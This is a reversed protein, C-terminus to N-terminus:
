AHPNPVATKTGRCVLRALAINFGPTNGGPGSFKLPPYDTQTLFRIGSIRSLDPKGPRRRPDLFGPGRGGPDGGAPAAAAQGAGLFTAMLLLCVALRGI